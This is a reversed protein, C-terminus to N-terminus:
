LRIVCVVRVYHTGKKRHTDKSLALFLPFFRFNVHSKDCPEANSYEFRDFYIQIKSNGYFFRLQM